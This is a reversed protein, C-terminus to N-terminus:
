KPKGAQAAKYGSDLDSGGFVDKDLRHILCDAVM